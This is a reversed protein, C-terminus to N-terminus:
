PSFWDGRGAADLPLRRSLRFRHLKPQWNARLAPSRWSEVLVLSPLLIRHGRKFAMRLKPLSYQTGTVADILVSTDLVIM